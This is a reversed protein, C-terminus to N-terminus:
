IYPEMLIDVVKSYDYDVYMGLITHPNMQMRDLDGEFQPYDVLNYNKVYWTTSDLMRWEVHIGPIENEYAKM